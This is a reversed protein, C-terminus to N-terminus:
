VFGVNTIYGKCIRCPCNAPRWKKLAVKFSNLAPMEKYTGPLMDWIELGLFSLSEPGKYVSNVLPRSFLSNYRLNYHPQDNLKFIKHMQSLALNKSVKFMETALIKINREHISVSVDNKLLANFSSWKDNHIFRFCREHLRNTKNNNERSYYMWILPYYNFQQNFFANILNRKKSLGM